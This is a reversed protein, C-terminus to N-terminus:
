RRRGKGVAARQGNAWRRRRGNTRQWVTRRRRGNAWGQFPPRSHGDRIADLWGGCRWGRSLFVVVCGGVRRIRRHEVPAGKSALVVVVVAHGLQQSSWGWWGWGPPAQGRPHGPHQRPPQGVGLRASDWRPFRLIAHACDLGVQKQSQHQYLRSLWSLLSSRFM